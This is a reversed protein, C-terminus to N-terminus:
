GTEYRHRDRSIWGPTSPKTRKRGSWINLHIFERDGREPTAADRPRMAIAIAGPSIAWPNWSTTPM